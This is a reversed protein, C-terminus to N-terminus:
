AWNHIPKQGFKSIKSQKAAIAQWKKTYEISNERYITWILQFKAHLSSYDFVSYM